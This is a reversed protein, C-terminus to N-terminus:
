LPNQITQFLANLPNDVFIKDLGFTSGAISAYFAGDTGQVWAIVQFAILVFMAVFVLFFVAGLLHNVVTIAKNKKGMATSLIHVVIRRIMQVVLFLVAAFVILDIRITLLINCIWSDAEALMTTFKTLLTQVFGWGLVTSFLAYCVFISIVRGFVGGAFLKLGRSFGLASGIALCVFIGALFVVDATIM